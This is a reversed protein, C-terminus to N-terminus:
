TNLVDRSCRMRKGAWKGDGVEWRGSEVVLSDNEGDSRKDDVLRLKWGRCCEVWGGGTTFRTGTLSFVGLLDNGVEGIDAGGGLRAFLFSLYM